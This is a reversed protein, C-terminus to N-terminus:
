TNWIRPIVAKEGKLLPRFFQWILAFGDRCLEVSDGLFRVILVDEKQTVGWLNDGQGAYKQKQRCHTWHKLGNM